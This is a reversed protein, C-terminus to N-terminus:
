TQFGGKMLRVLGHVSMRCLPTKLSFNQCATLHAALPPFGFNRQPGPSTRRRTSRRHETLRISGFESRALSDLTPLIFICRVRASTTSFDTAGRGENRLGVIPFIRPVRHMRLWMKARAVNPFRASQYFDRYLEITAERDFRVRQQGLVLEREM